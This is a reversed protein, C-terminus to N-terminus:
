EAFTAGLLMRSTAEALRSLVVRHLMIARGLLATPPLVGRGELGVLAFAPDMVGFPRSAPIMCRSTQACAAVHLDDAAVLFGVERVVLARPLSDLWVLASGAM